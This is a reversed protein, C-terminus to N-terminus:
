SSWILHRLNQDLAERLYTSAEPSLSLNELLRFTTLGFSSRRSYDLMLLFETEEELFVIDGPVVEEVRTRELQQSRLVKAYQPVWHKLAEMAREARWEQIFGLIANIVVVFVVIISLSYMEAVAALVSAALLLVGFPDGFQALFKGGLSERRREAIVNKGYRELRNRAEDSSLGQPSSRLRRFVDDISEYLYEEM